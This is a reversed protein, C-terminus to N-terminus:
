CLYVNGNQHQASILETKNGKKRVSRESMRTKMRMRNQAHNRQKETGFIHSKGSVLNRKCKVTKERATRM